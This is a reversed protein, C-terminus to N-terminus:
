AAILQRRWYGVTGKSTGTRVAIQQDTLDPATRLQELMRHHREATSPPCVALRLEEPWRPRIIGAAELRRRRKDVTEKCVGVCRAIASNAMIPNAKLMEEIRQYVEAWEDPTM